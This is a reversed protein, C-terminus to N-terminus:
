GRARIAAALRGAGVGDRRYSCFFESQEATCLRSAHIREPSLGATILQDIASAWGDFQWHGDRTEVPFWSAIQVSSFDREFRNRVEDGVEYRVASISPGLAATVDEPRTGFHETMANVAAQPVRAALGRWGAHAAAVAGSRADAMLIPVCDATEIALVLAPDDSVIIDAEALTRSNHADGARRVIVTSGHVQRLRALAVQRSNFASTVEDWAAAEDVGGRQAGLRWDRTTFLHGALPQLARCVLAPGAATEIWAFDDGVQPRM